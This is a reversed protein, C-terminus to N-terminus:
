QVWVLRSGTESPDVAHAGLTALCRSWRILKPMDM